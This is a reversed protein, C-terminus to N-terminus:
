MVQKYRASGWLQRSGAAGSLRGDSLDRQLLPSPRQGPLPAVAPSHQACSPFLFRSSAVMLDLSHFPRSSGPNTKRAAADRGHRAGELPAHRTEPRGRRCSESAELIGASRISSASPRPLPSPLFLFSEPFAASSTFYIFAYLHRDHLM